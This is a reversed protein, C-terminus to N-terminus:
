AGVLDFVTRALLEAGTLPPTTAATAMTTHTAIM